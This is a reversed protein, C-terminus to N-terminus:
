IMVWKNYIMKMMFLKLEGSALSPITKLTPIKGVPNYKRFTKGNTIPDTYEFSNPFQANYEKLLEEDVTKFSLIENKEGGVRSAISIGDNQFLLQANKIQNNAIIDCLAM